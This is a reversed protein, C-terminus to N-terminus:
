EDESVGEARDFRVEFGQVNDTDVPVGDSTYHLDDENYDQLDPPEIALHRRKAAWDIYAEYADEFTDARVLDHLPFYSDAVAFIFLKEGSGEDVLDYIRFPGGVRDAPDHATIEKGKQWVWDNGRSDKVWIQTATSLDAHWNLKPM